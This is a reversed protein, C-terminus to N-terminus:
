PPPRCARRPRRKRGQTRLIARPSDRPAGPRRSARRRRRRRPSRFTPPRCILFPLNFWLPPWGDYLCFVKRKHSLEQKMDCNCGEQAEAGRRAHCSRWVAMGRYYHFLRVMALVMLLWFRGLLVLFGLRWALRRGRRWCRRVAPSARLAARAM